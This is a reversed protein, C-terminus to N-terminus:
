LLSFLPFSDLSTELIYIDKGLIDYKTVEEDSCVLSNDCHFHLKHIKFISFHPMLNQFEKFTFVNTHVSIHYFHCLLSREYM